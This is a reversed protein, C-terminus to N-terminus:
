DRVREYRAFLYDGDRCLQALSFKKHSSLTRVISPGGNGVYPAITINIADVLDADLLAANLKPGGEVHIVSADLQEHLQAILSQFDIERDGAHFTRVPLQPGGHTTAVMGWGSSFLPSSFDLELSKSVVVIPLPARAPAGYNESRVTGAGVLVVDAHERLALLVNRDTESGLPGSKGNVDIMGDPTTIMCIEVSVPRDRHFSMADFATIEGEPQTM